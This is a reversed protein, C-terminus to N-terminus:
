LLPDGVAAGTPFRSKAEQIRCCGSKNFETVAKFFRAM